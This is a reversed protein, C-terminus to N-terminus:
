DIWFPKLLPSDSVNAGDNTPDGNVFKDIFTSYFPFRWNEPSPSYTHNEWEGWYDLPDVADADQNLNWDLQDLNYLLSSTLTVLLSGVGLSAAWM